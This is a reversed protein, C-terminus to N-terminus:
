SMDLSLGTHKEASALLVWSSVAATNSCCGHFGCGDRWLDLFRDIVAESDSVCTHPRWTVYHAVEHDQGYAAFM